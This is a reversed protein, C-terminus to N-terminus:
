GVHLRVCLCLSVVVSIIQWGACKGRWFMVWNDLVDAPLMAQYIMCLSLPKLLLTRPFFHRALLSTSCQSRWQDCIHSAIKPSLPFAGPISTHLRPFRSRKWFSSTDLCALTHLHPKASFQTVSQTLLQLWCVSLWILNHLTNLPDICFWRQMSLRRRPVSDDM